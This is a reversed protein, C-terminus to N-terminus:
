DSVRSLMREVLARTQSDSGYQRLAVEWKLREVSMPGREAVIQRAIFERAWNFMEVSRQVRECPSLADIRREYEQQVDMM